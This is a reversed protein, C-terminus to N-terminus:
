VRFSRMCIVYCSRPPSANKEYEYFFIIGVQAILASYIVTEVQMVDCGAM